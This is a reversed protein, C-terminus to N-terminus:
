LLAIQEDTQELETVFKMQSYFPWIRFVALECGPLGFLLLIDLQVLPATQSSTSTIHKAFALIRATILFQSLHKRFECLTTQCWFLPTTKAFSDRKGKKSCLM